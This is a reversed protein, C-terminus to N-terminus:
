FWRGRYMARSYDQCARVCFYFHKLDVFPLSITGAYSNYASSGYEVSDGYPTPSYSSPHGGGAGYSSRSEGGRSSRAVILYFSVESNFANVELQIFKM